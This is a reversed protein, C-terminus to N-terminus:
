EGGGGEGKEKCPCCFEINVDKGDVDHGQKELEDLYADVAKQPDTIGDFM